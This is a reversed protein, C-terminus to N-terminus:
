AGEKRPLSQGNLVVALSGKAIVEVPALHQDLFLLALKQQPSTLSAVHQADDQIMKVKVM